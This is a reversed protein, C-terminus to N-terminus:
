NASPDTTAIWIVCAGLLAAVGMLMWGRSTKGRGFEADEASLRAGYRFLEIIAVAMIIGAALHFSSYMGQGAPVHTLHSMGPQMAISVEATM